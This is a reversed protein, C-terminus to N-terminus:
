QRGEGVSIGLPVKTKLGYVLYTAALATVSLRMAECVSRSSNGRM